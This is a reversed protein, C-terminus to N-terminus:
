AVGDIEILLFFLNVAMVRLIKYSAANMSKQFLPTSEVDRLM